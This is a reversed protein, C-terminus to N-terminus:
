SIDISKVIGAGWSSLLLANGGVELSGNPLYVYEPYTIDLTDVVVMNAPDSIYVSWVRVPNGGMAVYAMNGSIDMTRATLGGINFGYLYGATKLNSPDSIDFAALCGGATGIVFAIDKVICIDRNDNNISSSIRDLVSINYPDSVDVTYLSDNVTICAVTGNMAAFYSPDSAYYAATDMESMSSPNSINITTVKGSCGLVAVTGSIAIARAGNTNASTFTGLISMSSPNSINVSVLRNGGTDTVYAVTGSIALGSAGTISISDLISISSPNSINMSVLTNKVDSTMYAVSGDVVIVQGYETSPVDLSDLVSLAEGGDLIVPVSEPYIKKLLNM